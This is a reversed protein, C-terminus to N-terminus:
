AKKKIIGVMSGFISSILIITYYILNKTQFNNYIFINFILLILIFILGIKLGELWGKKNTKKGLIFASAFISILPILLNFITITNGKIVNLYSLLTVLILLITFTIIGILLSKGLKKIYNM